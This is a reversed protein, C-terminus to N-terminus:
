SHLFFNYNKQSKFPTNAFFSLPYLSVDFRIRHHDSSINSRDTADILLFSSRPIWVYERLSSSKTLLFPPDVKEWALNLPCWQLDPMNRKLIRWCDRKRQFLGWLLGVVLCKIANAERWKVNWSFSTWKFTQKDCSCNVFIGKLGLYSAM